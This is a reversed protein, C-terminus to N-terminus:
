QAAGRLCFERNSLTHEIHVPCTRCLCGQQVVNLTSKGSVCFLGTDGAVCSPCRSCACRDLDKETPLSM